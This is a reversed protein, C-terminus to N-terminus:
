SQNGTLATAEERLLLLASWSVALVDVSEAFIHTYVRLPFWVQNGPEGHRVPRVVEFTEDILPHRRFARLCARLELCSLAIIHM